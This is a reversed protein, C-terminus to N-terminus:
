AGPEDGVTIGGRRTVVVVEISANGTRRAYHGTTIATVNRTSVRLEGPARLELDLDADSALTIAVDGEDVEVRLTRPGGTQIVEVRGRGADVDVAGGSAVRVDGHEVSVGVGEDAGVVEVRGVEIDVSVAVRSGVVVVDGVGTRIDLDRNDPLELTDLELDVAGRSALPVDARLEAFGDVTEFVLAPERARARADSKTGATARWRGSYSLSAPCTAPVRADCAFVDIPTSPLDIRLTDVGALDHTGEFSAEGRVGLVCAAALLAVIAKHRAM